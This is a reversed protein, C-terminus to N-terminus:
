DKNLHKKHCDPGIGWVGMYGSDGEDAAEEQTRAWYGGGVVTVEHKYPMKVPKGCIACGVENDKLRASNKRYNAGSFPLVKYTNLTLTTMPM